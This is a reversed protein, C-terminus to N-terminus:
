IIMTDFDTAEMSADSLLYTSMALAVLPDIRQSSKSKDIKRNGAADTIVIANAAAMNLLPHSAHALRKQLLLSELGELRVTFDRFGQGVPLWEADQAFGCRAAAIKFDEIRWRDFSLSVLNMGSTLDVLAEAIHEYNMHPGPLAILHGDRVWQEYPARDAQSREVIGDAPTFVFPKTHVLGTDPDM